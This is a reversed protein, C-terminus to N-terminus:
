NEPLIELLAAEADVVDGVQVAIGEVSGNCPAKIALEMKMAEMVVLTQGERVTAGETVDINLVKGPMPALLRGEAQHSQAIAEFPRHFLARIRQGHRILDLGDEGNRHVRIRESADATQLLLWGQGLDELNLDFTQDKIKVRYAGAFGTVESVIREGAIEM